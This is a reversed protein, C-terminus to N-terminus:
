VNPDRLLTEATTDLAVAFKNATQVSLSQKGKECLSVLAQSVGAKTALEQQTLKRALRIAHLPTGLYTPM